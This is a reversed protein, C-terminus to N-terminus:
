GIGGLKAGAILAVLACACYVIKGIVFFWEGIPKKIGYSIAEM